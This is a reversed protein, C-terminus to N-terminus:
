LILPSDMRRMSGLFHQASLSLCLSLTWFFALLKALFLVCILKIDELIMFHSCCANVNAYALEFMFGVGICQIKNTVKTVSTPSYNSFFPDYITRM